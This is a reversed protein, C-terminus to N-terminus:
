PPRQRRSSPETSPARLRQREEPSLQQWRQRLRQREDPSLQQWREWNRQVREREEGSLADYRRLREILRERREPPLRQWREYAPELERRREAGLENWRQFDEVIRAREGPPVGRESSGRGPKREEPATSGRRRDQEPLRQREDLTMRPGRERDREVGVPEGPAPSAPGQPAPQAQVVGPDARLLALVVLATLLRRAGPSLMM